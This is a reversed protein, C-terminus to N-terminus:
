DKVSRHIPCRDAIHKENAGCFPCIMLNRNRDKLPFTEDRYPRTRCYKFGEPKLKIAELGMEGTVKRRHVEEPAVDGENVRGSPLDHIEDKASIEKAECFKRVLVLQQIQAEITVEIKEKRNRGM